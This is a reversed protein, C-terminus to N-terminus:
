GGRKLLAPEDKSETPNKVGGTTLNDVRKRNHKFLLVLNADATISPQSVLLSRAYRYIAVCEADIYTALVALQNHPLGNSPVVDLAQHYFDVAHSWDKRARESHLEKYRALDGLHVLCRHCSQKALRM